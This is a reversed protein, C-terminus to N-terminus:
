KPKEAGYKEDIMDAWEPMAPQALDYGPEITILGKLAGIMPHRGSGLADPEHRFERPSERMGGPPSASVRRFVLRRRKLDIQETEYGADLWAKAQVHNTADNAWWSPHGYASPPLRAGVVREVQAFTMPLEAATQDKLFRALAQYRSM